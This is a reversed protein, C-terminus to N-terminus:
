SNEVPHRRIRLDGQLMQQESEVAPWFLMFGRAHLSINIRLDICTDIFIIPEIRPYSLHLFLIEREREGVSGCVILIDRGGANAKDRM